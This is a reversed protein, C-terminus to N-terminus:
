LLILTSTWTFSTLISVDLWVKRQRVVVWEAVGAAYMALNDCLHTMGRPMGAVRVTTTREESQALANRARQCSICTCKWQARKALHAALTSDDASPKLGVIQELCIIVIKQVFRDVNIKRKLAWEQLKPLLPVLTSEVYSANTATSSLTRNIMDEFLTASDDSKAAFDMAAIISSVTRSQACYRSLLAMETRIHADLKEDPMSVIREHKSTIHRHLSQNYKSPIDLRRIRPWVSHDYM